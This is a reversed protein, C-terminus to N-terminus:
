IGGGGGGEGLLGPDWPTDTLVHSKSRGAERKELARNSEPYSRRKACKCARRRGKVVCVYMCVCVCVLLLASCLLAGGNGRGAGRGDASNKLDKSGGGAGKYIGNVRGGSRDIQSDQCPCQRVAYWDIFVCEGVWSAPDHHLRQQQVRQSSVSRLLM